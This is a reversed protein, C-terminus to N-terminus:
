EIFSTSLNFQAEPIHMILRKIFDFASISEIVKKNTEHRQYWFTVIKGDYNLIRSQAM